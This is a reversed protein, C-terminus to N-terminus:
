KGTKRFYFGRYQKPLHNLTSKSLGAKELAHDISRTVDDVKMNSCLEWHVIYRSYDDLVTSLYYWGWGIIKFYTFDTQWMQNPRTTKDKFESSAQMVIYAPSTILGRRKRKIDKVVAEATNKKPRGPRAM